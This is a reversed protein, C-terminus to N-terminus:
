AFRASKRAAGAAPGGGQRKKRSSGASSVGPGPSSLAASISPLDAFGVRVWWAASYRINVGPGMFRPQTARHPLDPRMVAVQGAKLGTEFQLPEGTAKDRQIGRTTSTLQGKVNSNVDIEGERAFVLSAGEAERVTMVATYIGKPDAHWKNEPCEVDREVPGMGYRRGFSYHVWVKQVHALPRNQSHRAFQAVAELIRATVAKFAGGRRPDALAEAVRADIAREAATDGSHGVNGVGIQGVWRPEPPCFADWAHADTERPLVGDYSFAAWEADKGDAASEQALVVLFFLPFFIYSDHYYM